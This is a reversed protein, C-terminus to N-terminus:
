KRRRRAALGALALLSLTATTPEPIAPAATLKVAGNELNLLYAGESLNTFVTEAAIPTFETSATAVDGTLLSTVGTFLTVYGSNELATDLDAILSGSLTLNGLTLSNDGMALVADMALIGNALTLASDLTASGATVTLNTLTVAVDSTIVTNAGGLTLSTVNFGKAFQAQAGAVFELGTLTVDGTFNYGKGEIKLTSNSKKGDIVDTVTGSINIANSGGAKIHADEIVYLNGKLSTTAETTTGQLNKGDNGFRIAVGKYGSESFSTKGIYLNSSIDVLQGVNADKWTQLFLQSGGAVVTNAKDLTTITHKGTTGLIQTDEASFTKSVSNSANSVYYETAFKDYITVSDLLESNLYVSTATATSSKLGTNTYVNAMSYGSGTYLYSGSNDGDKKLVAYMTNALNKKAVSLVNNGPKHENGNWSGVLTGDEKTNFGFSKNTTIETKGTEANVTPTTYILNQNSDWTLTSLTLYIGNGVDYGTLIGTSATYSVTTGNTLTVSADTDGITLTTTTSNDTVTLAMVQPASMLATLLM